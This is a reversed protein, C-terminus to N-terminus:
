SLARERRRDCIAQHLASLYPVSTLLLTVVFKRVLRLVVPLFPLSAHRGTRIWLFTVLSKRGNRSRESSLSCITGVNSCIAMWVRTFWRAKPRRPTKTKANSLRLADEIIDKNMEHLPDFFLRQSLQAHPKRWDVVRRVLNDATEGM